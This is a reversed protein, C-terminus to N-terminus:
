TAPEMDMIDPTIAASSVALELDTVGFDGGGLSGRGRLGGRHFGGDGFGGGHMGAGGFGGGHAEATQSGIPPVFAFVVVAAIMLLKRTM